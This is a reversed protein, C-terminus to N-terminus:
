AHSLMMCSPKPGAGGRRFSIEFSCECYHFKQTCFKTKIKGHISAVTCTATATTSISTQGNDPIPRTIYFSLNDEVDGTVEVEKHLPEEINKGQITAECCPLLSNEM